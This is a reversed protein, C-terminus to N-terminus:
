FRLMTANIQLVKGFIAKKEYFRMEFTYCQSVKLWSM